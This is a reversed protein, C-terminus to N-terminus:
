VDSPPSGITREDTYSPCAGGDRDHPCDHYRIIAWEADIVVGNEIDDLITSKTDADDFRRNGRIHSTGGDVPNVETMSSAQDPLKETHNGMVNQQLRDELLTDVWDPPGPSPETTPDTQQNTSTIIEIAHAM